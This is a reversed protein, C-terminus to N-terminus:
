QSLLGIQTIADYLSGALEDAGELSAFTSTIGVCRLGAAKAAAVGPNSDEVAVGESAEIRLEHLARRYGEPHPKGHAVDDAAVITAISTALGAANLVLDIEARMAGSVVAIPVRNAADKIALRTFSDVTNGSGAQERYRGVKKEVLDPRPEGLWREIIEPDSLGSLEAYYEEATLPRGEDSFLDQFIACIIPEDDSITGNFDLLLGRV